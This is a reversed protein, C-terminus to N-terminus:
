ENVCLGSIRETSELISRQTSVKLDLFARMKNFKSKDIKNQDLYMEFDSIYNLMRLKNELQIRELNLDQRRKYEIFKRKEKFNMRKKFPLMFCRTYKYQGNFATRDNYLEFLINSDDEAISKEQFLFLVLCNLVLFGVIFLFLYM